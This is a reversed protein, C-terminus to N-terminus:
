HASCTGFPSCRTRRWICADGDDGVGAALEGLGSGGRGGPRSGPRYARVLGAVGVEVRLL